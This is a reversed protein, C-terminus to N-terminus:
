TWPLSSLSGTTLHRCRMTRNLVANIEPSHLLRVLSRCITTAGRKPVLVILHNEVAVKRKGLVLTATARYRDGPRSTRRVVVFPPGFTRGEFKRTESVRRIEAWPAANRPHLYAYLPGAKEHRHPIVAGIAVFFNDGVTRGPNKRQDSVPLAHIDRKTFRQMFVDVDAHHSFLGISRPRTRRVFQGIHSRWAAYSSGTRLVEPLLAAIQSGPASLRAAREVFLAAATVAGERWLQKGCAVRGYPPNMLIHTNNSYEASVSLGDAVILRTLLRALNTPSDDLRAGRTVALLALRLRAAEIFEPSVDCGSIHENWLQLTSSVTRKIPLKRAVPLLLDAAGCAPDFVTVDGWARVSFQSVMREAVSSPTFFAGLRRISKPRVLDLCREAALGDLLASADEQIPALLALQLEDVFNAYGGTESSEM